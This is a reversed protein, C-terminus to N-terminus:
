STGPGLEAVVEAGRRAERELGKIVVAAPVDVPAIGRLQEGMQVMDDFHEDIFRYLQDAEPGLPTWLWSAEDESAVVSATVEDGHPEFVVYENVPSDFGGARIVAREGSLLREQAAPLQDVLVGLAGFSLMPGWREEGDVRLSICAASPSVELEDREGADRELLEGLTVIDASSGIFLGLQLEATHPSTAHTM